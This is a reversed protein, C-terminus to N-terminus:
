NNLQNNTTSQQNCTPDNTKNTTPQDNNTTPQQKNITLALQVDCIMKAHEYPNRKKKWSTWTEINGRGETRSWSQIWATESLAKIWLGGSAKQGHLTGIAHLRAVFPVPLWRLPWAVAWHGSVEIATAVAINATEDQLAGIVATFRLALASTLLCQYM